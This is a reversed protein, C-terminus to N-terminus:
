SNVVITTNRLTLKSVAFTCRSKLTEPPGRIEM